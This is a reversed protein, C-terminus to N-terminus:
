WVLPVHAHALVAQVVGAVANALDDHAGPAHDISDRGGRGVRRELGVLQTVLKPHDLLEVRRANVAPLLERYLGSKAKEAAQYIVGHKRFEAVPWEGAYKDGRVTLVRYSKLMEAFEAVVSGPDFPPRV